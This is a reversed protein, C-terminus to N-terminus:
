LFLFISCNNFGNTGIKIKLFSICSFSVIVLLRYPHINRASLDSNRCYRPLAETRPLCDGKLGSFGMQVPQLHFNRINIISINVSSFLTNEQVMEYISHLNLVSNISCNSYFYIICAEPSGRALM